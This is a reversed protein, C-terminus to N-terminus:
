DAAISWAAQTAQLHGRAGRAPPPEVSPWLVDIAHTGKECTLIHHAGAFQIGTVVVEGDPAPCFAAGEPRIVITCPGDKVGEVSWAGASSTATGASAHAPLLACRGTMAAAGLTAPRRYVAEPSADQVIGSGAEDLVVMRDALSMAADHDHTVMLVSAGEESAIRRLLRGLDHRRGADVNSFPEDLLLLAPRPALARALAVRQQQGGSLHRPRRSALDPDIGVLTLLGEVRAPSSARLGYAVNERVTMDPFLAYEQFVLGVGRRECPVTEVGDRHVVVGDISISGHQPAALGAICRLLTTKGSGSAGILTVFEAPQVRLNVGEWVPNQDYAYRLRTIELPAPDPM